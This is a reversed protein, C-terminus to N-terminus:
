NTSYTNMCSIFRRHSVGLSAIAPRYSRCCDCSYINSSKPYVVGLFVGNVPMNGQFFVNAIIKLTNIPTGPQCTGGSCMGGYGPSGDILQTQLVVCENTHNPDQCSVLCSNQNPCAVQLNMTAGASQCQEALSTCTGSACKLNNSGCSQGNPAFKDAPCASSNGTCMEAIDCQPDKSPRCVQTSPAFSCSDNCCPSSKPDCLAGSTFKCTQSDCCSSTVGEGPDCDESAEVIGNGCMQLPIATRTPDPDLLCSSNTIGSSGGQMLSCINGVSCPSFNMEGM